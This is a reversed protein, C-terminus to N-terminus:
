HGGLFPRNRNVQCFGGKEFYENNWMLMKYLGDQNGEIGSANHNFLNLRHFEKLCGRNLVKKKLPYAPNKRSVSQPYNSALNM